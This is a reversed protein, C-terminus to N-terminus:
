RMKLAELQQEIETRPLWRGYAMVGAQLRVNSVDELPNADLLLLDARHGTAITGSDAEGLYQGFNRTGTALAEFNPLGATVMMELTLFM